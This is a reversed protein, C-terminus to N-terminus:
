KDGKMTRGREESTYLDTSYLEHTSSGANLSMKMRSTAASAVAMTDMMNGTSYQMTNNASMGFNRGADFADINAGFFQFVWNKDERLAVLQKIDENNYKSSANEAGDTMIMIIVAPRNKKKIGRLHDDIELITQGIADYLNTMGCPRYLENSMPPADNVDKIGWLNVVNGGEFKNVMIDTKDKDKKQGSVFENFGDITSDVVGSMSGSEDMIVAVITGNTGAKIGKPLQKTTKSNIKANGPFPSPTFSVTATANIGPFANPLTRRQMYTM